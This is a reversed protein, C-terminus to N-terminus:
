ISPKEVCYNTEVLRNRDIQFIRSVHSREHDDISAIGAKIPSAKQIQEQAHFRRELVAHRSKIEIDRLFECASFLKM